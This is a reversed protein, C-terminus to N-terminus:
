SRRDLSQIFKEIAIGVDTPSLVSGDRPGGGISSGGGWTEGNGLPGGRGLSELRNLEQYILPLEFDAVLDSRKALTYWFRGNEDRSGVVLRDRGQRYLEQVLRDKSRPDARELVAMVFGRYETVSVPPPAETHSEGVALGQSWWTEMRELAGELVERAGSPYGRGKEMQVSSMVDHEFFHWLEPYPLPYAPGHADRAAVTTLMPWVKRLAAPQHWRERHRLIWLSLVTDGDLDNVLVTFGSPDLGMLLADMVQRCTASTVLRLCGAHHDLSLRHQESDIKPGQVAGDLAITRPPLDEFRWERGIQLDIKM